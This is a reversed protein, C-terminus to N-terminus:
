GAIRGEALYNMASRKRTKAIFFFYYIIKKKENGVLQDARYFNM